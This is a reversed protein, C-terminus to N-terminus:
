LLNEFAYFCCEFSIAKIGFSALRSIEEQVYFEICKQVALSLKEIKLNISLNFFLHCVILDMTMIGDSLLLHFLFHGVLTIILYIIIAIKLAVFDSPM